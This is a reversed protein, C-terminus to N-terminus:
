QVADTNCALRICSARGPARVAIMLPRADSPSSGEQGNPPPRYSMENAYDFELRFDLFPNSAPASVIPATMMHSMWNQFAGKWQAALPVAGTVLGAWWRQPRRAQGADPPALAPTHAPSDFM